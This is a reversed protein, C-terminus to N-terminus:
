CIIVGDIKLYLGPLIGAVALVAKDRDFNDMCTSTVVIDSAVFCAVDQVTLVSVVQEISIKAPIHNIAPTSTVSSLERRSCVSDLKIM